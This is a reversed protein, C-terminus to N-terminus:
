NLRTRQTGDLKMRYFLPPDGRRSTPLVSSHFLWSYAINMSEVQHTGIRQMGTGNLNIRYLQNNDGSVTYYIKNNSVNTSIAAQGNIRTLETGDTRIRWIGGELAGFVIWPKIININKARLNVFRARQTGDARMRYLGGTPTFNSFYLWGNSLLLTEARDETLRTLEGGNTRVRYVRRNSGRNVFYIWDGEVNIKSASQNVLRTRSTGDVRVKHLNGREEPWSSYYIWDGQIYMNGAIDEAIRTEGTGDDRMKYFGGTSSNNSFYIWGNHAIATGYNSINGFAKGETGQIINERAKLENLMRSIVVFAEARTLSRKPGFTGDPYGALLRHEVAVAVAARHRESISDKDSFPLSVDVTPVLGLGLLRTTYLAMDERTIPAAPHFRTGEERPEIIRLHAATHINNSSWRAQIDTFATRSSTFEAARIGSTLMKIFQERTVTDSPRMTGDPFGGIVDPRETSVERIVREAWHGRIDPFAYVTSPLLLIILVIFSIFNFKKM